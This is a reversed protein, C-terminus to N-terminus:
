QPRRTGRVLLLLGFLANLVYLLSAAGHLQGFRAAEASGAVLGADRLASIEPALAFENVLIFVLMLTLLLARWDLGPRASLRNRALLLGGVLLGFYNLYGFLIGAVTGAVARELEAFLVPAVLFGVTWLAGVWLALLVRELTNVFIAPVQSNM